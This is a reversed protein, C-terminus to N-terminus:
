SMILNGDAGVILKCEKAAECAKILAQTKLITDQLRVWSPNAYLKALEGAADRKGKAEALLAAAEANATALKAAGLEVAKQKENRAAQIGPDSYDVDKIIM